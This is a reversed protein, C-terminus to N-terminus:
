QSEEFVELVRQNLERASALDYGFPKEIVIRAQAKPARHLGAAGLKECIIPFFEPATSLYFLRNLEYDAEEDLEGLARDIERYVDDHDFTGTLYRLDGLLGDLVYPDPRRRSFRGISERAIARFEEDAQEGRAIGILQFREPLAGEHALNYLAPLLKRRALDGTAGFLVLSTPRVPIRELGATLPNEQDVETAAASQM